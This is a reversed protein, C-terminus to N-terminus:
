EMSKSLLSKGRLVRVKVNSLSLNLKEAMENYSMEEMYRLKIVEQYLPPLSEVKDRLESINQQNILEQEPSPVSIQVVPDLMLDENLSIHNGKRKRWHDILTNNAIAKVWTVFEFDENYLELKEFVKTFTTITVDEAEVENKLQFLVFYYINDWYANLLKTQASQKGNRSDTVLQLLDNKKLKRLKAIASNRCKAM